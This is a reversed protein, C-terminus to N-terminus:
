VQVNMTVGQNRAIKIGLTLKGNNELSHETLTMVNVKQGNILNSILILKGHDNYCTHILCFDVSKSLYVTLSIEIYDGGLAEKVLNIMISVAM